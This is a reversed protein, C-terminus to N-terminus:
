STARPPLPEGLRMRKLIGAFRPDGWASTFFPNTRLTHMMDAREEVGRNLAEYTEDLEDVFMHLLARFFPPTATDATLDRIIAKADEIRGAGRYVSALLGRFAEQQSLAYAEEAIRIADDHRGIERYSNALWSHAHIFSPEMARARELHVVAQANQGAYSYAIGVRIIASLSFPDVAVAQQAMAIGEDFRGMSSLFNSYWQRATSYSPNLEIATLFEREAGDWDWDHNLRVLGLSAHGDALAPDLEICRM